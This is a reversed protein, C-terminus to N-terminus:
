GVEYVLPVSFGVGNKKWWNKGEESRFLEEIRRVGRLSVPLESLVREPLPADFGFRPLVYYGYQHETKHGLMLIRRIGLKRCIEIQRNFIRRGEGLSQQTKRLIHIEQYLSLRGTKSRHVRGTGTLGLFESEYHEAYLKRQLTGLFLESHETAGFLEFLIKKSPMIGFFSQALGDFSKREGPFFRIKEEENKGNEHSKERCVTAQGTWEYM